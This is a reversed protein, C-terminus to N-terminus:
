SALKSYKLGKVLDVLIRFVPFTQFLGLDAGNAEDVAQNKLFHLYGIRGHPWLQQISVCLSHISLELAGVKRPRTTPRTVRSLHTVVIQKQIPYHILPAKGHDM